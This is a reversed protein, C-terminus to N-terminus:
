WVKRVGISSSPKAGILACRYMRRARRLRIFAAVQSYGDLYGHEKLQAFLRLATRREKRPRRSDTDLSQILWPAHADLKHTGTLRTYQM